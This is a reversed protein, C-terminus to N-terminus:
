LPIPSPATGMFRDLLAVLDDIPLPKRLATISRLEILDLAGARGTMLIARKRRKIADALLVAGSGDPLDANAVVVDHHGSRVASTGEAFTGVCTMPLGIAELAACLYQRIEEDSEVVLIAGM